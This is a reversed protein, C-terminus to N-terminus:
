VGSGLKLNRDNGCVDSGLEVSSWDKDGVKSLLPVLSPSNKTSGVNDKDANLTIVGLMDAVSDLSCDETPSTTVSVATKKRSVVPTNKGGSDVTNSEGDSM